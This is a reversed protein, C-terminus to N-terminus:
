AARTPPSSPPEADSAMREAVTPGATDTMTTTTTTATERGDFTDDFTSRRGRTLNTVSSRVQGALDSADTRLEELNTRVRERGPLHEIEESPMIIALLPYGVISLASIPPVLAVVVFAVRVVTPDIGFYEALGGCVGFLMREQRSRHMRPRDTQPSQPSSSTM